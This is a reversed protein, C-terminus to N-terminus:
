WNDFSQIDYDFQGIMQKQEEITPLTEVTPAVVKESSSSHSNSAGFTLLLNHSGSLGAATYIQSLQYLLASSADSVIRQKTAEDCKSSNAVALPLWFARLALLIMDTTSRVNSSSIYDLMLVDMPNRPQFRWRFNKQAQKSM